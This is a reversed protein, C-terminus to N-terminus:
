RWVRERGAHLNLRRLTYLRGNKNCAAILKTPTTTGSLLASSLTPSAGFDSDFIQQSAPVTWSDQRPLNAGALRVIGNSDGPTSAYRTGPNGTSVYVHAGAGDAAPSSWISGGLTGAPMTYYTGVRAGTHQDFGVAGGRVLPNDGQSSIGVYRSRDSRCWGLDM